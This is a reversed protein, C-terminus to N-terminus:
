DASLSLKLKQDVELKGCKKEVIERTLWTTIIGGKTLVPEIQVKDGKENFKKVSVDTTFVKNAM